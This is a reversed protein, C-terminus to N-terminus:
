KLSWGFYHINTVKAGRGAGSRRFGKVSKWLVKFKSSYGWGGPSRGVYASDCASTPWTLVIYSNATSLNLHAVVYHRYKM